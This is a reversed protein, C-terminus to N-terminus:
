KHAAELPNDTKRWREFGPKGSTQVFPSTHKLGARYLTNVEAEALARKWFSFEDVHGNFNCRYSGTGDQGLHIPLGSVFKAGRGDGAMSHLRGDLGGGYFLVVGDGSVTVALFLWEHNSPFYPGMLKRTGDGQLYEFCIGRQCQVGYYEADQELVLLLRVM